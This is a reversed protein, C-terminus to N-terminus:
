QLWRVQADSPHLPPRDNHLRNRDPWVSAWIQSSVLCRSSGRSPFPAVKLMNEDSGTLEVHKNAGVGSPYGAVGPDDGYDELM